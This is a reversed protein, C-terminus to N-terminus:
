FAIKFLFVLLIKLKAFTKPRFIKIVANNLTEIFTLGLQLKKSLQVKCFNLFYIKNKLCYKKIVDYYIKVKKISSKKRFKIRSPYAYLALVTKM